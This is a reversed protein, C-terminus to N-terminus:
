RLRKPLGQKQTKRAKDAEDEEDENWPSASSTGGIIGNRRHECTGVAEPPIFRNGKETAWILLTFHKDGPGFYGLPRQQVNDEFFRFEFFERYGGKKEPRLKAADPRTWRERPRASLLEWQVDFAARVAESAREYDSRVERRESASTHDRLWWIKEEDIM